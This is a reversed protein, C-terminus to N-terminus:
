YAHAPHAGISVIVQLFFEHVAEADHEDHAHEADGGHDDDGELVDEYAYQLRIATRESPAFALLLSGRVGKEEAEGALDLVAGRLQIWWRQAMQYRFGTYLGDRAIEDRRGHMYETIWEFSTYRAADTPVWKLTLDAGWVGQWHGHTDKHFLTSGGLELSLADTLDFFTELHAVYSILDVLAKTDEGHEEAEGDTEAGHAEHGHAGGTWGAHVAQLNLETYFPLPALYDLSIGTGLLHDAGFVHSLPRPADVFRRAHAHQLNAKGFNVLLKGARVTLDPITLTSLFAEEFGVELQGEHTHAALAVDYRFYPDANASLRLEVEQLTIGNSLADASHEAGDGSSYAGVLAM